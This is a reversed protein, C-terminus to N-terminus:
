WIEFAIEEELEEEEVDSYLIQTPKLFNLEAFEGVVGFLRGGKPLLLVDRLTTTDYYAYPFRFLKNQDLLKECAIYLHQLGEAQESNVLYTREIQFNFYEELSIAQTLSMPEKFM